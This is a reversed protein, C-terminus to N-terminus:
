LAITGGDAADRNGLTGFGLAHFETRRIRGAVRVQAEGRDEHCTDITDQIADVRTVWNVLVEVLEGGFFGLKDLLYRRGETCYEICEFGIVFEQELTVDEGAVEEFGVDTVFALDFEVWDADARCRVFKRQVKITLAMDNQAVSTGSALAPSFRKERKFEERCILSEEDGSFRSM